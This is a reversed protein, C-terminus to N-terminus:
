TAYLIYWHVTKSFSLIITRLTNKTSILMKNLHYFVDTISDLKM